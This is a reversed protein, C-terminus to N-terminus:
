RNFFWSKKREHPKSQQSAKQEEVEKVTSEGENVDSKLVSSHSKEQSSDEELVKLAKQFM